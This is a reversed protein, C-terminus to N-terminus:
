LLQDGTFTTRGESKGVEISLFSMIMKDGDKTGTEEGGDTALACCDSMWLM